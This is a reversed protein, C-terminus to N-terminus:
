DENKDERQKPKKMPVPQVLKRNKPLVKKKKIKPRIKPRKKPRTKPPRVIVRTKEKTNNIIVREKEVIVKKLVVEKPPEEELVVKHEYNVPEHAVIKVVCAFLFLIM